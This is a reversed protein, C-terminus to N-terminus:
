DRFKAKLKPMQFIKMLQTTSVHVVVPITTPGAARHTLGAFMRRATLQELNVLRQGFGPDQELLRSHVAMTGCARRVPPVIKKQSKRRTTKKGKM